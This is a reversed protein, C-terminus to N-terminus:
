TLSWAHRFNIFGTRDAILDKIYIFTMRVSKSCTTVFTPSNISRFWNNFVNTLFTSNFKNRFFSWSSGLIKTRCQAGQFRSFFRDLFLTYFTSFFKLNRFIFSFLSVTFKTFIRTSKSVPIFLRHFSLFRSCVSLISPPKIFFFAIIASKIVASYKHYMMNISISFVSFEVVENGKTMITMTNSMNNHASIM